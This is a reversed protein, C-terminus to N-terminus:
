KSLTEFRIWKISLEFSPVDDVTQHSHAESAHLVSPFAHIFRYYEELQVKQKTKM